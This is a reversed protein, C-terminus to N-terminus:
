GEQFEFGYQEDYVIGSEDLLKFYEEKFSWKRHLADQGIVYAIMGEREMPSCSIGVYGAQWRFVKEVWGNANIYGSSYAKLDGILRSLNKTPPLTILAHVHDLNCHVAHPIAQEKNLFSTLYRYVQNNFEKTLLNDRGDVAFIVHVLTQTFTNAM